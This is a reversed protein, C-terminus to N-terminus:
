RIVCRLDVTFIFKSQGPRQVVLRTREWCATPNYVILGADLLKWTLDLLILATGTLLKHTEVMLSSSERSLQIRLHPFKTPSWSSFGICRLAQHSKDLQAWYIQLGGNDEANQLM